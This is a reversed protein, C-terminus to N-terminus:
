YRNMQALLYMANLKVTFLITLQNNKLYINKFWYEPKNNKLSGEQNNRVM